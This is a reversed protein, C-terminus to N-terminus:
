DSSHLAVVTVFGHSAMLEHLPLQVVRNFDAGVMPGGHDHVVLPFRGPLAQADEAAGLSSRLHYPGAPTLIVYRFAVDPPRATPYFVQVRTARGGTMTASFTTVGVHYPGPQDPPAIDAASARASDLLPAALLFGLLLGLKKVPTHSM